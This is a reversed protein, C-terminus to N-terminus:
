EEVRIWNSIERTVPLASIAPLARRIQEERTRHTVWVIEAAEGHGRKQLVSEISVDHEGFVTAISALARPRDAVQMRIYYNTEIERIERIRKQDFCTCSVRGTAKARINRAVEMIDGMVASGTPLAGAGRGYFMVEGVANGRAFIANFVDNVSALPHEAPLMAPHVRLELEGEEEKAIAVLKIVYGLERAYAIDEHGIKRIGEHYVQGLDVRSQFAISALISLKYAADFGDVDDTPDAEAYGRAQAEGLATAFDQNQHAMQTLIYNTTGNVIGVLEQMRNAALSIKLAQIIPIGGAVSGEFQFDLQREGAEMLLEHGQKALLEKNATVINKGNRIARELYTRAPEIGGILEAVIDIEPDDLVEGPDTTLLGRDFSVPRPKDPHLVCIKKVVLRAGVKREIAAQNEQLARLTGSGVTGLGLIGIRLLSQEMCHM